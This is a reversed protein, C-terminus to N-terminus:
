LDPNNLDIRFISIKGIRSKAMDLILRKIGERIRFQFDIGGVVFIGLKAKIPLPSIDPTLM